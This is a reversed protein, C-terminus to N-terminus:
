GGSMGTQNFKQVLTKARFILALCPFLRHLHFCFISTLHKFNRSVEEHFYKLEEGSSLVVDHRRKRRPVEEPESTVEEVAEGDIYPNRFPTSIEQGYTAYFDTTYERMATALDVLWDDDLDSENNEEQHFGPDPPTWSDNM